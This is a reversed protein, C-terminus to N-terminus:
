AHAYIRKGQNKIKHHLRQPNKAHTEFEEQTLVLLDKAFDLNRLVRFGEVTHKYRDKRFGKVVVLIDLDSDENPTGWAYSGFM